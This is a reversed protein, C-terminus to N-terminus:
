EKPIIYEYYFAGYGGWFGLGGNVNSNARTYSAFPGGNNSDFELSSWFEYHDRDITMWKLQVTDGARFLGVSDLEVEEDPYIPRPLPFSLTKGNFFVDDFVSGNNSYLPRSNVGTLYRYYNVQDGPDSIEIGFDYLSDAINGAPREHYLRNVSVTDPVTTSATLVEEDIEIRLDYRANPEKVIEDFLDIYICFNVFVNNVLLADRIIEAIAPDLEDLCVETLLVDNGGEKRVTITADRVYAEALAQEDIRDFFPLTRSLFVYTPVADNGLEIFGEVVYEVPYASTDPEYPTECGGTFIITSILVFLIPRVNM